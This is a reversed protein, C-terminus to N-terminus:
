RGILVWSGAFERDLSFQAPPGEDRWSWGRPLDFSLNVIDGVHDPLHLWRLRYDWTGDERPTAVGPASWVVTLTTQGGSPAAARFWGAAPHGAMAPEEIRLPDSAAEDLVAGEPGYMTMYALTGAPNFVPDPPETNTITLKTTTRASGDPNIVIHHDYTRRVGRGNKASYEFESNFFFDGTHRPFAGDWRRDALTKAVVPDSSWGLAQKADFAEGIVRGLPEWQSAPADLLKHMVNEAVAAVFDKRNTGPPPPLQHTYFNLREDINQATVTESYAPVEVPGAVSLIRGMFGPTFSIVGDVPAEGATKWLNAALQAAQPWDPISNVNNLTRRLPPTQHRFPAGAQEPAVVANPHSATWNEMADYRELRLQGKDASLVGYTGIYGGTPRVEDPNQSLFLYRKPGSEGAFAMLASLGDDASVARAEIGPLRSALDDRARALPALLLVGHLRSVDEAAKTIAAVAPGLSAQTSRLADMAASVPIKDDAPHLVADAADVLPQGAQSLGLGAEALTDVAKLQNGAIPLWRVVTAVPGLARIASQTRSFAEHAVLLDERTVGMQRASLSAEARNLAEKGQQAASAARLLHAL